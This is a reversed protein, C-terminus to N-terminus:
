KKQCIRLPINLSKALVLALSEGVAPRIGLLYAVILTAGAWALPFSFPKFASLNLEPREKHGSALVGLAPTFMILVAWPGCGSYYM